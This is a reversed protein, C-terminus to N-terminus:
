MFGGMGGVGGMGGGMGQDYRHQLKEIQRGRLSRNRDQLGKLLGNSGAAEAAAGHAGPVKVPTGMSQGFGAPIPAVGEEAAPREKAPMPGEETKAGPISRLKRLLMEIQDHVEETQSVVLVSVNQYLTLRQISGPGGVSDWTQPAITTTLTDILTDYDEWEEGQKDRCRVLDSVLYVKTQLEKEAEESSTIQLVEDRVFYTLGVDALLLRLASRLSAGQFNGNLPTDTGVGVNDLGKRDIRVPIRHVQEIMKAVDELPTEHLTLSTPMALAAKIKREIPSVDALDVVTPKGSSQTGDAQPAPLSEAAAGLRREVAEAIWATGRGEAPSRHFAYRGPGAQVIVTPSGVIGSAVFLGRRDTTGSVFDANGSGTVKVQVAHLYRDAVVDKVTTRVEREAPDHQVEIELPSLLVLGSAFLSDGRCVVLYAGEDKLPLALTHARDRYDQGEGLDVIAEHHPQIGALNIRTIGNLDQRLLAFKLLDIRYVKVECATLNRFSLSLEVPQGPRVTTLEPLKIAKRVFYAISKKADPFHEEVLRYQRIAEPTKGQSHYIQALIFLAPWKNAGDTTRGTAPDVPKYAAVKRLMEAAPEDQGQAFRCYGIIYWYSDLLTSAPYRHAYQQCAVAAEDHKELELLANAASFAVQDAAPDEPYTSLFTELMRWARAILDMRNLKAQRLKADEATRAAQGYVQQALAYHATAVYPELPYERVLRSMVAVSRLFEHKAALFGAVGSELTFNGEIAARFVLYSREFEGMEHYAAGVQLTKAFSIHQDPWKQLIIESNHVVEAWQKLELHADLLMVIAQKYTKPTVNWKTVLENLHTVATKWDRQEFALQGLAFLEDPSLRYADASAQGAPLVALPKPSAVALLQPRHVDRVVTPAAHYSGPLYGHLAYQIVGDRLRQGVYFTIAGPGIEFREFSGRVSHEVVAAGSPIPETIVLYELQEEPLSAPASRWVRLGVLGRRGVPLQTLPNRFAQVEGQIQDFGRPLERGDRELPAPEYTREVQWADTTNKLQEAPVFGALIVQYAYRGRGDLQFQVRQKGPSWRGPRSTSSGAPSRATWNWCRRRPTM